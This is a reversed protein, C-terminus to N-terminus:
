ESGGDKKAKSAEGPADGASEKAADSAGADCVIQVGGGDTPCERCTAALARACKPNNGKVDFQIPYPPCQGSVWVDGDLDSICIADCPGAEDPPGALAPDVVTGPYLCDADPDYLEGVYIHSIPEGCAMWVLGGAVSPVLLLQTLKL